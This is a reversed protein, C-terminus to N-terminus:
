IKARLKNFEKTSIKKKISEESLTKAKEKLISTIQKKHYLFDSKERRSLNAMIQGYGTMNRKKSISKKEKNSAIM